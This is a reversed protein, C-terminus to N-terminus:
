AMFQYQLPQQKLLQRFQVILQRHQGSIVIEVQQRVTVPLVAADQVMELFVERDNLDGLLTQYHKLRAVLQGPQCGCLWALLENFYRWKKIAIRLRHRKEAHEALEPLQLLQHISRYLTLNRDSLWGVVAHHHDAGPILLREVAQHLKRTLRKCPLDELLHRIRRMEHRRRQGLTATLPAIGEDHLGLLYNRAEDLNRLQGLERTLERVPRRLSRIEQQGIGPAALELAARLRRSAVRLDHIDEDEGRELVAQRLRLLEGWQNGLAHTLAELLAQPAPLARKEM